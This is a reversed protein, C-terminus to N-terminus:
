LAPRIDVIKRQQDVEHLILLALYDEVLKVQPQATGVLVGTGVIEVDVEHALDYMGRVTGGAKMFDDIVLVRAGPPIARRPLSMSQIRKGSGTVYNISVSPGETVKSGQRVIVLPLNFARATMFALPIGKTEVTMIYDPSLHSFRSFFIEGVQVMLDPTFLIDAMYLFGGPIIREPSALKEALEHLFACTGDQSRLPLFRVGGAAGSVTELSGMAFQEMAQRITVIDESLTSKAAGFLECFHNLSFLHGPRETLFKTLAIMRETRRAKTM